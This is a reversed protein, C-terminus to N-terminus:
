RPCTGGAYRVIDSKMQHIRSRPHGGEDYSCHDICVTKSIRDDSQLHHARACQPPIRVSFLACMISRHRDKNQFFVRGVIYFLIM